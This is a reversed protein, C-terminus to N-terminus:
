QELIPQKFEDSANTTFLGDNVSDDTFLSENAPADLWERKWDPAKKVAEAVKHVWPILVDQFEVYRPTGEFGTGVRFYANCDLYNIKEAIPPFTEGDFIRVPLILGHPNYITRYKLQNERYLMFKLEHICWPSNFYDPSWISVLCRSYVLANQLADPWADGPDIGERDVFVKVVRKNLANRLYPSFLPLFTKRVWNGLIDANAYSLFVDWQYDM